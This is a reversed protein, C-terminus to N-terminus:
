IVHLKHRRNLFANIVDVTAVADWMLFDFLLQRWEESVRAEM